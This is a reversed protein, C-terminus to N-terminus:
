KININPPDGERVDLIIMASISRPGMTATVTIAYLLTPMMAYTPLVFMGDEVDMYGPGIGSCGSFPDGIPVSFPESLPFYLRALKENNCM